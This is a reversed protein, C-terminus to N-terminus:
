KQKKTKIKKETEREEQIYGRNLSHSSSKLWVSVSDTVGDSSSHTDCVKAALDNFTVVLRLDFALEALFKKAVRNHNSTVLLLTNENLSRNIANTDANAKLLEILEICDKCLTEHAEKSLTSIVEKHETTLRDNLSEIVTLLNSIIDTEKDGVYVSLSKVLALKDIEDNLKHLINVLLDRLHLKRDISTSTAGRLSEV